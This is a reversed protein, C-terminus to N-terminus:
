DFFKECHNCFYKGQKDSMNPVLKFKRSAGNLYITRGVIGVQVRATDNSGCHSCPPLEANEFRLYQETIGPYQDELTSMSALANERRKADSVKPEVPEAKKATSKNKKKDTM